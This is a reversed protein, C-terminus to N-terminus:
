NEVAIGIPERRRRTGLHEALPDAGGLFRDLGVRAQEV